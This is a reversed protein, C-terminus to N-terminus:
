FDDPPRRLNPINGPLRRGPPALGDDVLGRYSGAGLYLLVLLLVGLVGIGQAIGSNDPNCAWWVALLFLAREIMAYLPRDWRRRDMFGRLFGDALAGDRDLNYTTRARRFRGRFGHIAFPLRVLTRVLYLYGVFLIVSTAARAPSRLDLPPPYGYLGNALAMVLVAAVGQRLM